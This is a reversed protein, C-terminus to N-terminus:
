GSSGETMATVALFSFGLGRLWAVLMIKAINPKKNPAIGPSIRAKTIVDVRM